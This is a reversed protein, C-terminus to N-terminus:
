KNDSAWHNNYTGGAKDNLLEASQGRLINTHKKPNEFYVAMPGGFLM